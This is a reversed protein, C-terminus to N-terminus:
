TSPRPWAAGAVIGAAAAAAHAEALVAAVPLGRRHSLEVVDDFEPMVNLVRDGAHAVKLRVKEGAVTLALVARPLARKAVPVERLGITTTLAFMLERVRAASAASCLVTLTHAPRGKKMLIPVLWADNAGTALLEDLVTPWVRPDLDDVNCEIVLEQEPETTAATTTGFVARVVNARGPVDRSGAGLGVRDVLMEPLDGSETLAALLAAGTPTALEGKGGAFVPRGRVLELVAPAPVPLDGHAGGRLRGSGLALRGAIIQEVDLEELAACVGVIDAVSDAAGVEHFHVDGIPCGHVAAEAHALREFAQLARARVAAPLPATVLGRQLDAWTRHPADQELLEVRLRCARLGARLVQETGLRVAGPLVADVAGQVPQLDVGIDLLAGLLMDGAVGASVDLWLLAM